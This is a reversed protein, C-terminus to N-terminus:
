DTPKVKLWDSCRGFFYHSQPRRLVVGEGGGAVVSEMWEVADARGACHIQPCFEVCASAALRAATALRKELPIADVTPADFVWYGVGEWDPHSAPRHQVAVRVREFTGRGGWLEGDLAVGRPLRAVIRAPAAIRLWTRTRLTEGDWFARCGDLKESVLWGAVDQNTFRGALMMPPIMAMEPPPTFGL